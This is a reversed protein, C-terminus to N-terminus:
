ESTKTKKTMYDRGLTYFSRTIEAKFSKMFSPAKEYLWQQKWPILQSTRFRNRTDHRKSKSNRDIIVVLYKHYLSAKVRTNFLIKWKHSNNEKYYVELFSVALHTSHEDSGNFIVHDFADHAENEQKEELDPILYKLVSNSVESKYNRKAVVQCLIAALWSQLAVQEEVILKSKENSFYILFAQNLKFIKLLLLEIKSSPAEKSATAQNTQVFGNVTHKLSKSLEFCIQLVNEQIITEVEVSPKKGEFKLFDQLFNYVWPEYVTMLFRSIENERITGSDPRRVKEDLFTSAYVDLWINLSPAFRNQFTNITATPPKKWSNGWPFSSVMDTFHRIQQAFQATHVQDFKRAVQGLFGLFNKEDKFFFDWKVNNTTKYYNILLILIIKLKLIEGKHVIKSEGKAINVQWLREDQAPKFYNVLLTTLRHNPSNTNYDLNLKEQNVLELVKTPSPLSNFVFSWLAKRELNLTQEKHYPEILVLIRLNLRWILKLLEEMKGIIEKLRTSKETGVHKSRMLQLFKKCQSDLEPTRNTVDRTACFTVLFSFFKEMNEEIMTADHSNTSHSVLDSPYQSNRDAIEQQLYCSSSNEATNESTPNDVERNAKSTSESSALAVNIDLLREQLADKAAEFVTSKGQSVEFMTPRGGPVKMVIPGAEPAEVVTSKGKPLVELFDFLTPKKYHAEYQRNQHQDVPVGLAQWLGVPNKSSAAHPPLNSFVEHNEFPTHLSRENERILKLGNDPTRAYEESRDRNTRFTKMVDDRNSLGIKKNPFNNEGYKGDLVRKKSGSPPSKATNEPLSHGRSTSSSAIFTSYFMSKNEGAQTDSIKSTDQNEMALSNEFSNNKIERDREKSFLGVGFEPNPAM